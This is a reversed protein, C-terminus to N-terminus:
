RRSAPPAADHTGTAPFRRGAMADTDARQTEQQPCLAAQLERMYANFRDMERANIPRAQVDERPELWRSLWSESVLLRDALARQTVGFGILTKMRARFEDELSVTLETVSQVTAGTM